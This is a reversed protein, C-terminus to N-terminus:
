KLLTKLYKKEELNTIKKMELDLYLHTEDSTRSRFVFSGLNLLIKWIAKM